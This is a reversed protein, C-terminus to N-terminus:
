QNTPKPTLLNNNRAFAEIRQICPRDMNVVSLIRRPGFIPQIFFHVHNQGDIREVTGRNTFGALNVPIFIETKTLRDTHIFAIHPPEFREVEAYLAGNFMVVMGKMKLREIWRELEEIEDAPTPKREQDGYLALRLYERTHDISEMVMSDVQGNRLADLCVLLHEASAFDSEVKTGVAKIHLPHRELTQM